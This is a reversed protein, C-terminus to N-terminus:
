DIELEIAAGEEYTDQTFAFGLASSIQNAPYQDWDGPTRESGGFHTYSWGLGGLLLGGGDEVFHLVAPVVSEDWAFESPWPNGFIVAEACELQEDVDGQVDVVGFGWSRRRLLAQLEETNHEDTWGPILLVEVAPDCAERDHERNIAWRLANDIFVLNDNPPCTAACRDDEDAVVRDHAYVVAHGSGFEAVGVFVRSFAPFGDVTPPIRGVITITREVDDTSAALVCDPPSHEM